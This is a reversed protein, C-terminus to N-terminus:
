DETQKRLYRAWVEPLYEQRERSISERVYTWAQEELSTHYFEAMARLILLNPDDARVKVRVESYREGKRM